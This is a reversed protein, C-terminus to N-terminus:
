SEIVHRSSHYFPVGSGDRMIVHGQRVLEDVTKQAQTPNLGLADVLQQVTQPRRQLSARIMEVMRPEEVQQQAAREQRKAPTAAHLAKRWRELEDKDVPGTSKVTGPRTLTVVDIRDPQLRKCFAELRGLNEDTDNVGKALLIELFIKGNFIRSFEILGQAVENPGIGECPRNLALFEELVLSDLSPLVIDALALETRAREDLMLTSNTLVAVPVDPLLDRAGEIVYAMESNLCPEGLGGLTVADPLENGEDIWHELEHLIDEAPVYPARELTCVRTAGVECYICDMSCVRDGLLDLGLSRGLRGSMVPGFIYQYKMENVVQRM